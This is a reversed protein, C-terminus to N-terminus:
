DEGKQKGLIDGPKINQESHKEQLHVSIAMTLIRDIQDLSLDYNNTFYYIRSDCPRCLVAGRYMTIPWERIMKLYAELNM